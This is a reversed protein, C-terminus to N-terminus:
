PMSVKSIKSKLREEDPSQEDPQLDRGLVELRATQLMTLAVQYDERAKSKAGIAAFADGRGEYATWGGAGSRLVETYDRIAADYQKFGSLILARYEHVVGGAGASIARNYDDLALEKKGLLDYCQGRLVFIERDSTGERLAATFDDVADSCQHNRLYLRGRAAQVRIRLADDIDDSGLAKSYYEIAMDRLQRREKVSLSQDGAKREYERGKEAFVTATQRCGAVAFSVSLVVALVVSWSSTKDIVVNM